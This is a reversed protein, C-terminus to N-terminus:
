RPSWRPPVGPSRRRRDLPRGGIGVRQDHRQARMQRLAPVQDVPARDRDVAMRHLARERIGDAGVRPRRRLERHRLHGGARLRRLQQDRAPHHEQRHHGRDAQERQPHQDRPRQDPADLPRRQPGYRHRADHRRDHPQDRDRHVQIERDGVVRKARHEIQAREHGKVPDGCESARDEVELDAKRQEADGCPRRQPHIPRLAFVARDGLEGRQRSRQERRRRRQDDRAGRPM